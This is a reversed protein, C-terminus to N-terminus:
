YIQDIWWRQGCCHPPGPIQQSAPQEAGHPSALSNGIMESWLLVVNQDSWILDSHLNKKKLLLCVFVSMECSWESMREDVWVCVWVGVFLEFQSSWGVDPIYSSHRMSDHSISLRLRVWLSGLHDDTLFVYLGSFFSSYLVHLYLFIYIKLMSTFYLQM